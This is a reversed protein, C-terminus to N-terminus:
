RVETFQFSVQYLQTADAHWTRLNSALRFVGQCNVLKIATGDAPVERLSPWVSISANGSGDSNVQAVAQHLRSGIQLYDGPQLQGFVNAVWGRTVLTTANLANNSGSTACVPAGEAKGQPDAGLPDGLQVVNQMGRMGALFGLWAGAFKRHMKPLSLKLSWADAGPWIQTQQQSPVFPSPVNAVADMMSVSIGSFGPSSPLPILTYTNPGLTITSM